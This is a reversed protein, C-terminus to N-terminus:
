IRDMKIETFTTDLEANVGDFARIHNKDSTLKFHKPSTKEIEFTGDFYKDFNMYIENYQNLYWSGAVVYNFTDYTLYYAFVIDDKQFDLKYVCCDNGDPYHPLSLLFNSPITDIHLDSIQWLGNILNDQQIKKCSNFNVVVVCSVITVFLFRVIKM